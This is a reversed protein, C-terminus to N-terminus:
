THGHETSRQSTDRISAPTQFFTDHRASSSKHHNPHKRPGSFLPYPGPLFYTSLFASLLLVDNIVVSIKTPSLALGVTILSLLTKSIPITTAHRIRDPVPLPPATILLTPIGLLLTAAYFVSIATSVALSHSSPQVLYINFRPFEPTGIQLSKSARPSDNTPQRGFICASRDSTISRNCLPGLSDQIVPTQLAQSNNNPARCRTPVCIIIFNVLLYLRLSPHSNCQGDNVSRLDFSFFSKSIGQWFAGMRLWGSTPLSIRHIYAYIVCSLWTLYAALSFSTSYVARKSAVSHALSLPFIALALGTTLALRYTATPHPILLLLTHTSETGLAPHPAHFISSLHVYRPSVSHSAFDQPM